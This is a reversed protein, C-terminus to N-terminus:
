RLRRPRRARRRRSAAPAPQPRPRDNGAPHQCCGTWPRTGAHHSTDLTVWIEWRHDDFDGWGGRARLHHGRGAERPPVQTQGEAPLFQRPHQHDSGLRFDTSVRGNRLRHDSDPSPGSPPDCVPIAFHIDVQGGEVMVREIVTRVLRQRERVAVHGAHLPPLHWRARADSSM